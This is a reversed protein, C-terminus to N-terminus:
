SVPNPVPTFGPILGLDACLQQAPVVGGDWTAAGPDNETQCSPCQM